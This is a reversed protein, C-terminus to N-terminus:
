KSDDNGTGLSVLKVSCVGYKLVLQSSLNVLLNKQVFLCSITGIENISFLLASKSIFPNTL